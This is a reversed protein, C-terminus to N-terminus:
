GGSYMTVKLVKEDLRANHGRNNFLINIYGFDGNRNELDSIWKKIDCTSSAIYLDYISLKDFTTKEISFPGIIM